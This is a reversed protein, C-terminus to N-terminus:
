RLPPGYLTERFNMYGFTGSIQTGLPKATIV